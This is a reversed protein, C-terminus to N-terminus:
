PRPLKGEQSRAKARISGTLRRLQEIISNLGQTVLIMESKKQLHGQDDRYFFKREIM